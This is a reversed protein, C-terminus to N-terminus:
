CMQSVGMATNAPVIPSSTTAITSTTPVDLETTDSEATLPVDVDSLVVTSAEAGVSNKDRLVVPIAPVEVPAEILVSEQVQFDVPAASLSVNPTILDVMEELLGAELGVM